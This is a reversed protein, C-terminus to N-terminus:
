FFAINKLNKTNTAAIIVTILNMKLQKNRVRNLFTKDWM